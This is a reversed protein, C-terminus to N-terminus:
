TEFNFERDHLIETVDQVYHNDLHKESNVGKDTLFLNDRYSINICPIYWTDM